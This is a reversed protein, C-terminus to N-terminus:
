INDELGVRVGGGLIIALYNMSLQYDGVAGMSWFCDDSLDNLMIGAHLIDTWACAINGQMVLWQPIRYHGQPM